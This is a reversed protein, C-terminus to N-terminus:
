PRAQIHGTGPAERPEDASCVLHLHELCCERSDLFPVWRDDPDHPVGPHPLAAEAELEQFPTPGDGHDDGVVVVLEVHGLDDLGVLRDLLDARAVLIQADCLDVVYHLLPGRAMANLPIAVGKNVMAGFFTPMFELQNYLFLGVHAGEGVSRSIANGVRNTLSWATAYTLTSSGDFILWPKDGWEGAQDRLLRLLTREETPYRTAHDGLEFGKGRILGIRETM